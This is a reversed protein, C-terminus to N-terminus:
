VATDPAGPGGADREAVDPSLGLAECVQDFAAKRVAPDDDGLPLWLPRMEWALPDTAGGSAYFLLAAANCRVVPDPHHQCSWLLATRVEESRMEEAARLAPLGGDVDGSRLVEAVTEDARPLAELETLALAIAVRMRGSAKPLRRKMPMVAGRCEAHALAPPARVDDLELRAMLLEEASRREPKELLLLAEEDVADVFAPDPSTVSAVFRQYEPSPPQSM